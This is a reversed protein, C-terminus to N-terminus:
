SKTLHWGHCYPCEYARLNEPRGHSGRHRRFANLVSQAGKKDYRRKEKCMKARHNDPKIESNPRFPEGSPDAFEHNPSTGSHGNGNTAARRPPTQAIKPTEM